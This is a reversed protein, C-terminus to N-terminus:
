FKVGLHLAAFYSKYGPDLEQDINSGIHRISNHTQSQVRIKAFLSLNRDIEFEAGTDAFWCKKSINLDGTEGESSYFGVEKGAGITPSWRRWTLRYQISLPIGLQHTMEKVPSQVGFEDTVQKTTLNRYILEIQFSFRDNIAPVPINNLIGVPPTLNFDYRDSGDIAISQTYQVGSFVGFRNRIRGLDKEFTICGDGQCTENIYATTVSTLSSAKYDIGNILNQIRKSDSFMVSLTDRYFPFKVDYYTSYAYYSAPDVTERGLQFHENILGVLIGKEKEVYYAVNKNKKFHYLSVSGELLVEAFHRGLIQDQFFESAMYYKEGTIQYSQIDGPTYKVTKSRKGEKFLCVKTNRNSGCDKILGHLTDQEPTIVWGERYNWQGRTNSLPLLVMLVIIFSFRYNM